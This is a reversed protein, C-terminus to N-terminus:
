RSHMCAKIFDEASTSFGLQMEIDRTAVKTALLGDLTDHSEVATTADRILILNYGRRAFARMGYDRFQVCMNTAFGCYFLHLIKCYRLLRHLQNGTAIVFDELKPQIEEDIEMKEWLTSKCVPERGWGVYYEAYKGTRQSFEPPPWDVHSSSPKPDTEKDGAFRIWQPYKKAVAPAPAYIVKIGCNRAAEVVPAIKNRTIEAARKLWSFIYHMNWPDVIVLASENVDLALEKHVYGFKSEVCEVGPDTAIRYYQVPVKLRM